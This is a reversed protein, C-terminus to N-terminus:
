KLSECCQGLVLTQSEQKTSHARECYFDGGWGKRQLNDKNSDRKWPFTNKEAAKPMRLLFVFYQPKIFTEIFYEFIYVVQERLLYVKIDFVYKSDWLIIEDSKLRDYGEIIADIVFM